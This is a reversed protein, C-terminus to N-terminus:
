INKNEVVKVDIGEDRVVNISYATQLGSPKKDNILLREGVPVGFILQDYRIKNEALFRITQEKYEESRSTVIIIYDTDSIRKLFNISSPLPTDVGDLLYGNHKVITGDM